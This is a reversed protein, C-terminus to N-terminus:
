RRRPVTRGLRALVMKLDEWAQRKADKQQDGDQRILYSPHYTPMVPIGRYEHWNGRTKTIGEKVGLLTKTPVNGLTVIVAPKIIDIQRRIYDICAATEAAEPNRNGPPRCKVINGIYVLDRTFGMAEIMKTLLEGAKGVFPRGSRDEDAGPGEGIFMVEAHLNGEGPVTNTRTEALSCRTCAAVEAVLQDMLEQRSPFPIEEVGLLRLYELHEQLGDLIGSADTPRETM